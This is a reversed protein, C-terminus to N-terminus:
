PSFLLNADRTRAMCAEKHVSLPERESHRHVCFPRMVEAQLLRGWAVGYEWSARQDRLRRDRGRWDVGGNYFASPIGDSATAPFNRSRSRLGARSGQGKPGSRRGVSWM